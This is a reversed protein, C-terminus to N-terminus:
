LGISVSDEGEIQVAIVAQIYAKIAVDVIESAYAWPQRHVYVIDGPALRVDKEIGRLVDRTNVVRAEPNGVSGRIVLVKAKWAGKAYGSSEAIAGMVTLNGALPVAGPRGVSGFVYCENHVNSAIYIYDNPEIQVNQTMDGTRYLKEIDIPLKKGDRVVFSRRLDALETANANQVGVVIGKAKAIAELLSTPRDLKYTNNDKVKGLVTYKKSGLLAPTIKVKPNRHDQALVREIEVRLEEVTLGRVSIQKAQLFSITYDPAVPVKVKDLKPFGHLGINLEDGPGLEYRKTWSVREGKARKKPKPAYKQPQMKRARDVEKKLDDTRPVTGMTERPAAPAGDVAKARKVEIVPKTVVEEKEIAPVSAIKDEPKKDLYSLLPMTSKAEAVTAKPAADIEADTPSKLIQAGATVALLVLGAAASLQRYLSSNKM